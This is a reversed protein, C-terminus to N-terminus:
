GKDSFHKKIKLETMFFGGFLFALGVGTGLLVSHEIAVKQGHLAFSLVLETLLGLMGIKIFVDPAISQAYAWHEQSKRELPTDYGRHASITKAPYKKLIYGVLLMVFPCILNLILLVYSMKMEGIDKM